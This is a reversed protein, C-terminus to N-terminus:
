AVAKRAEIAAQLQRGESNFEGRVLKQKVDALWNSAEVSGFRLGAAEVYARAAANRQEDTQGWHQIGQLLFDRAIREIDM